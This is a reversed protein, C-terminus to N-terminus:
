TLIQFLFSFSLFLFPPNHLSFRSNWFLPKLLFSVVPVVLLVYFTCLLLLFKHFMMVSSFPAAVQAEQHRGHAGRHAQAVDPGEGILHTVVATKGKQDNVQNQGGCDAEANHQALQGNAPPRALADQHAILLHAAFHSGEQAEQSHEGGEQDEAKVGNQAGVAHLIDAQVKRFQQANKIDRSVPTEIMHEVFFCRHFEDSNRYHKLNTM